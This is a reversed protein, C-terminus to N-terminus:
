TPMNEENRIFLYIYIYKNIRKSFYIFLKLTFAAYKKILM